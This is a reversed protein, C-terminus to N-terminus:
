YYIIKFANTPDTEDYRGFNSENAMYSGTKVYIEGYAVYVLTDSAKVSDTLKIRLNSMTSFCHDELSEVNDLGTIISLSACQSFAHDQITKISDPLKIATIDSKQTFAHDHIGIVKYGDIESPIIVISNQGTYGSIFCEGTSLLKDMDVDDGPKIISFDSEDNEPLSELYSEAEDYSMTTVDKFDTVINANSSEESSATVEETVNTSETKQETQTDSNSTSKDNSTSSCGILMSTLSICMIGYLLKKRM